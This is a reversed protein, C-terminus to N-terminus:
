PNVYSSSLLVLFFSEPQTGRRRCLTMAEWLSRAPPVDPGSRGGVSGCIYLYMDRRGTTVGSHAGGGRLPTKQQPARCLWILPAAGLGFSAISLAARWCIRWDALGWGAPLRQDAALYANMRARVDDYSGPLMHGYIDFTTQIKSHGMVEQIAKPNAGTDILISAFTHRCEHMTLVTLLTAEPGEEEAAERETLNHALWARKARKDVTAGYFVQSATRGFIRDGGARGTRLLQQDLFDRLVALIPITRRGAASKPDIEGEVQDWGKRIRILSAGL